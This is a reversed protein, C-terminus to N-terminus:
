YYNHSYRYGKIRKAIYLFDLYERQENGSFRWSIRKLRTNWWREKVLLVRWEAANPFHCYILVFWCFMLAWQFGFLRHKEPWCFCKKDPALRSFFFFSVSLQVYDFPLLLYLSVINSIPVPFLTSQFFFFLVLVFLHCVYVISSWFM